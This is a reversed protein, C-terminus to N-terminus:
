DRSLAAIEVVLENLDGLVLCVLDDFAETGLHGASAAGLARPGCAVPMTAGVANSLPSATSTSGARKSSITTVASSPSSEAVADWHFHGEGPQPLGARATQDGRGSRGTRDTRRRVEPLPVDDRLGAM